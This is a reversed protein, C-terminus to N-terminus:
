LEKLKNLIKKITIDTAQHGNIKLTEYGYDEFTSYDNLFREFNEEDVGHKGKKEREITRTRAIDADIEVEIVLVKLEKNKDNAYQKLNKITNDLLVQHTFAQTWIITGTNDITEYASNRLYRYPHLKVEIKELKLKESFKIYEQSSFNINDPDLLVVPSQLEHKILKEAIYSKGSGPIGRIIILTSDKKQTNRNM